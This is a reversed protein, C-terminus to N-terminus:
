ASVPDVPVLLEPKTRYLEIESAMLPEEARVINTCTKGHYRSYTLTKAEIVVLDPQRSPTTM